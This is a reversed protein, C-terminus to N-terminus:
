QGARAKAVADKVPIEFPELRSLFSPLRNRAERAETPTDFEGWYLMVTQPQAVKRLIYLQDMIPQYSEESLMYRVNQQADESSLIMLQVTYKERSGGVLWRSGAALRQAYYLSYDKAQVEARPRVAPPVVVEEDLRDITAVQELRPEPILPEAEPDAEVPPRAEDDTSQPEQGQPLVTDAELAPPQDPRIKSEEKLTVVAVPASDTTPIKKPLLTQKPVAATEDSPRTEVEGSQEALKQTATSEEQIEVPQELPERVPVETVKEEVPGSQVVVGERV